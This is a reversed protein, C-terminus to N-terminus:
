GIDAMPILWSASYQSTPNSRQTSQSFAYFDNMTSNVNSSFDGFLSVISDLTTKGNDMTLEGGDIMTKAASDVEEFVTFGADFQSIFGDFLTDGAPTIGQVTIKLQDVQIPVGSLSQTNELLQSNFDLKVAGLYVLTSYVGIFERQWAPLVEGANIFGVSNILLTRILHITSLNSKYLGTSTQSDPFLGLSNQGQEKVWIVSNPTKGSFLTIDPSSKWGDSTGGPLVSVFQGGNGTSLRTNGSYAQFPKWLPLSNADRVTLFLARYPLLSNETTTIYVEEMIIKFKTLLSSLVNAVDVPNATKLGSVINVEPNITRGWGQNNPSFFYQPSVLSGSSVSILNIKDSGTIPITVSTYEELLQAKVTISFQQSIKKDQGSLFGQATIEFYYTHDKTHYDVLGTISGTESDLNLLPPLSGGTFSYSIYDGPINSSASIVFSSFTNDNVTGLFSLSNSWSLVSSQKLIVLNFEQSTSGLTSTATIHFTIYQDQNYILSKGYLEGLETLTLWSPLDNSSFTNLNFQPDVTQFNFTFWEGSLVSGISGAPTIWIPLSPLSVLTISFNGTITTTTNNFNTTASIFIPITTNSNM